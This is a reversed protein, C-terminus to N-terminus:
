RINTNNETTNEPLNNNETTNNNTGDMIDNVGNEVDDVVNDVGDKIDDVVNNDRETTKEMETGTSGDKTTEDKGGCGALSFTLFICITSLTLISKFRKM